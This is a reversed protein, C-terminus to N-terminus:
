RASAGRLDLLAALRLASAEDSEIAVAKDRSAQGSVLRVASRPLALEKGLFRLLEENAKGDVPPARLTVKLRQGHEGAIATKRAGPQVHLALV